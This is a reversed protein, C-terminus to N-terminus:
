ASMRRELLFIVTFQSFNVMTLVVQSIGHGRTRIVHGDTPFRVLIIPTRHNNLHSSRVDFVM